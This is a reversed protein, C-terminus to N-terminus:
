IDFHPGHIRKGRYTFQERAEHEQWTLAAKLATRVVEARTASRDIHWKRGTFEANAIQLLIADEFPEAHFTCEGFQIDKLIQQIAELNLTPQALHIAHNVAKEVTDFVPINHVRAMTRLFIRGRNLDDIESQHLPQDYLSANHPIDTIALALQRGLGMYYAVEAVTAVGRTERNIVFLLVAAADKAQMEAAENAESWAGLPLQPDYYTVAAAELAPIAIDRRWITQGAAGGLFVQPPM